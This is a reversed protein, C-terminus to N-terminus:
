YKKAISKTQKQASGMYHYSKIKIESPTYLKHRTLGLRDLKDQPGKPKITTVTIGNKGDMADLFKKQNDTSAARFKSADWDKDLETYKGEGLHLNGDLDVAAQDPITTFTEANSLTVELHLEEVRNTNLDPNTEISFGAAAIEILVDGIIFKGFERASSRVSKAVAETVEGGIELAKEKLSNAAYKEVIEEAADQAFGRGKAFNIFANKLKGLILDICSNHVVVGSEGVLFNHLEKVELNYVTESGEKQSSSLVKTNGYKTLVEEGIELEGALKWDGETISYIPHQYTVGLSEGNDFDINYVQNSQHEFLGTVPKWDYGDGADESPRKQPIIHKIATVRFPGNIGQEPLNMEVVADVQYGKQNIWDDHLALKATSGGYVEEFVVENWDTDNIEYEDRERQQDSTYPDKDMLGLYIDDDTSATMGYTANVTEHAVAYDLLQVEQIPVAVIPMTALAMGTAINKFPNNAMLVPTDKVFCGRGLIQMLGCKGKTEPKKAASQLWEKIKTAIKNVSGKAGDFLSSLAKFVKSGKIVGAVPAALVNALIEFALQGVFYAVSLSSINIDNAFLEEFVCIM